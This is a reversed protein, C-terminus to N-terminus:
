KRASILKRLAAKARNLQSRSTGESINLMEAIEVHSYDELVYLNIVTRFGDPLQKLAKKIKATTNQEDIEIDHEKQEVPKTFDESFALNLKRKKLIYICYRVTIKKAWGEFSGAGTFMNIKEYIIIFIEQLADKAEDDDQLYRQCIFYLKPSIQDYIWRFADSDYHKQLKLVAQELTDTATLPM